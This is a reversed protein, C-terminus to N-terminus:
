KNTTENAWFDFLLILFIAVLLAVMKEFRTFLIAITGLGASLFMLLIVAKKEGIKRSLNHHIHYLDGHFPSKKQIFMRRFIVVFSDLIPPGLVLLVTAIKAGSFISFV